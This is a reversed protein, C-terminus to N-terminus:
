VVENLGDIYAYFLFAKVNPYGMSSLMHRYAGVQSQHEPSKMATFKFDLVITETEGIFVKDPRLVQGDPSIISQESLTKYPGNWIRDLAADQLLKQAEQVLEETASSDILGEYQMASVQHPLDDIHAVRSLLEHLQLGKRVHEDQEGLALLEPKINRNSLAEHLIQSSPYDNFRWLWEDDRGEPHPWARIHREERQTAIPLPKEEKNSIVSPEDFAPYYVDDQLAVPLEYGYDRLVQRLLDAVLHDSDKGEAVNPASIYLEERTRTTAVYLLNLADMYNFLMEEYYDQYRSSRGVTGNYKVPARNLLGYPTDQIDIWFNGNLMGDLEWFCYPIMVVDFALGKSKHITMIEIANGGENAPLSKRIGDEEWFSLFASIGKEGFNSFEAILDRFALLYPVHREEAHLGFVHILSETLESLPLQQWDDWHAILAAPLTRAWRATDSKTMDMWIDPTPITTEAFLQHYLYVVNARYIAAEKSDTTMAYFVNLLLRIAKSNALSLADGSIVDFREEIPLSEQLLLLYDIIERAEKNNRVLIGIQGPRYRGSRLWDRITGSLKELALQKCSNARAKPHNSQPELFHVEVKGGQRKAALQPPVQQESGAYSEVIIHDYGKAQWWHRYLEESLEVAVKDNIKRQLWAPAHRFLFNNFAIIHAKSRYNELLNSQQIYHNGLDTIVGQKLIRWDGNRWRYISQKIDGVILHSAMHEMPEQEALENALLPSLNTWQAASTDQFEDFLFYKFRNSVKEWLFSPNAGQKENLESLLAQADSILLTSNESRYDALLGSMEKLLRLYYINDAIAKALFYDPSEEQYYAVIQKLLPTIRAYASEMHPPLGEKHWKEPTDVYEAIKAMRDADEPDSFRIKPILNRSKGLLDDTRLGSLDVAEGVQAFLERLHQEFQDLKESSYKDLTEFLQKKDQESLLNIAKDFPQFREKFLENALQRLVNTYNWNNDREIQKQAYDIIWQLLDEREDLLANLRVVLDNKVKETNMELRYSASLGLEFSFSRIIRQVFGDITSIAFRGYDHLIDRYLQSARPAIEESPLAPYRTQLIDKYASAKEDGMALFKLIELIRSKMEATAKNTFTVALIESFRVGPAFLLCIYHATLSFTKGSGASAKVINVPLTKPM